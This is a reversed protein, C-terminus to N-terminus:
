LISSIQSFIDAYEDDMKEVKEQNSLSEDLIFEKFDARFKKKIVLDNVM